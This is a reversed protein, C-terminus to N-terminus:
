CCTYSIHIIQLHDIQDIRGTRHTGGELVGGKYELRRLTPLAYEACELRRKKLQWLLDVGRKSGGRTRKPQSTRRQGFCILGCLRRSMVSSRTTNRPTPVVKRRGISHHWPRHQLSIGCAVVQRKTAPLGQRFPSAPTPPPTSMIMCPRLRIAM